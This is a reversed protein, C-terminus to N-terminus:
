HSSSSWENDRGASEFCTVFCQELQKPLTQELWNSM